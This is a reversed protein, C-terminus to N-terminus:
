RLEDHVVDGGVITLVSRTDPADIRGSLVALDAPEDTAPQTLPKAVARHQREVIEDREFEANSRGGALRQEGGGLIQGAVLAACAELQPDARAAKGFLM